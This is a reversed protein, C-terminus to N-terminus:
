RPWLFIIDARYIQKRHFFEEMSDSIEEAICKACL